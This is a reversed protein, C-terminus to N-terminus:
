PPSYPTKLGTKQLINPKELYGPMQNKMSFGQSIRM